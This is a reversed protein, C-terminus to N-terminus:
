RSYRRLCSGLAPPLSIIGCLPVLPTLGPHVCLCMLGRLPSLDRQHRNFVELRRRMGHRLAAGVARDKKKVLGVSGRQALENRGQPQTEAPVSAKLSMPVLA